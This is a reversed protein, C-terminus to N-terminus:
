ESREIRGAKAAGSHLRLNIGGVEVVSHKTGTLISVRIVIADYHSSVVRPVDKPPAVIGPCGFRPPARRKVPRILQAVIISSIGKIHQLSLWHKSENCPENPDQKQRASGCYGDCSRYENSSGHHTADGM